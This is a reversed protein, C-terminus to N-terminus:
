EFIKQSKVIRRIRTDIDFNKADERKDHKTKGKCVALVVKFKGRVHVVSEVMVTMGKQSMKGVLHDIEKRKLLAVISETVSNFQMGIIMFSNSTLAGRAGKIDYNNSAIAKTQTGTLKLGSVVREIIEFDHQIPNSRLPTM